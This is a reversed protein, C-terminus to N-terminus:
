TNIFEGKVFVKDGIKFNPLTSRRIDAYKQYQQQADSIVQQLHQHLEDLDVV